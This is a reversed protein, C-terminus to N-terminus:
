RGAEALWGGMLGLGIGRDSPSCVLVVGYGFLGPALLRLAAGLFSVFDSQIGVGEDKTAFISWYRM